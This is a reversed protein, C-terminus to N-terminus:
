KKLAKERNSLAERFVQLAREQKGEASVDKWTEVEKRTRAEWERLLEAYHWLFDFVIGSLHMREPFQYRGALYETAVITGQAQIQDSWYSANKLTKLMDEKTGYAAFFIRVLAEFELVPDRSSQKLWAALAKRGKPTISYTTRRRKGSYSVAVKALGHEILSKPEAYLNSEARPWFFRLNRRMQRALEYTPWSKVALWSLIAYSTTTLNKMRSM